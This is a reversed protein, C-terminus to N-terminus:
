KIESEETIVDITATHNDMTTIKPTSLIKTNTDSFIIELVASLSSADLTGFAFVDSLTTHVSSVGPIDDGRLYKNESHKTFPWTHARKSGSITGQINWNIGLKNTVDLDTELIKAEILVQPTIEDLAKITEELAYLKSQTDTIVLTNTRKDYTLKGKPTLLKELTGKIEEVKAFNLTFARTALPEAIQAEQVKKRREALNDLTDVLIINKGVWEYGYDYTKLVADLATQWDVNELDVTVPGKVQPPIIINVKSGDKVAKQIIAQLVVRIDADRFKLSPIRGEQAFLFINQGFFVIMILLLAVKKM